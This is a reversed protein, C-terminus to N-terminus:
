RGPNAAPVPSPAPAPALLRKSDAFAIDMARCAELGSDLEALLERLTEHGAPAIVVGRLTGLLGGARERVREAVLWGAEIHTEPMALLVESPGRDSVIDARRVAGAALQRLGELADAPDGVTEKDIGLLALCLPRSYEAAVGLEEEIRAMAEATSLLGGTPVAIFSLAEGQREMVLHTVPRALFGTLAGAALAAGAGLGLQLPTRYGDAWMVFLFAAAGLIGV